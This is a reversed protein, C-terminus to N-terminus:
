KVSESAIWDPDYSANRIQYGDKGAQKTKYLMIDSTEYLSEYTLYSGSNIVAGMSVTVHDNKAADLVIQHMSDRITDLKDRVRSYDVMGAAYIIFEDGGARMVIDMERFSGKLIDAVSKLVEDGRTHGYDDNIHKFNDVDMEIFTGSMKNRVHYRILDEGGTRNYAGTLKDHEASNQALDTRLLQGIRQDMIFYSCVISAATSLTLRVMDVAFLEPKKFVKDLMLYLAGIIVTFLFIRWPKDCIQQPLLILGVLFVFALGEATFMADYAAMALLMLGEWFYLLATTNDVIPAIAFFHIAMLFLFVVFLAILPGAVSAGGIAFMWISAVFALSTCLIMVRNIARANENRIENSFDNLRVPNLQERIRHLM